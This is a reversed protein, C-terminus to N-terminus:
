PKVQPDTTPKAPQDPQAADKSAERPAPQPTSAPLWYEARIAELIRDPAPGAIAQHVLDCSKKKTPVIFEWSPPPAALL